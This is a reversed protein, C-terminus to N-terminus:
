RRAGATSQARRDVPTGTMLLESADGADAPPMVQRLTAVLDWYVQWSVVRGGRWDAVVCLPVELRAGTPRFGALAGTHTGIASVRAVSRRRTEVVEEVCYRVNPLAVLLLWHIGAAATRGVPNGRTPDITTVAEDLIDQFGGLDRRNLSAFARM